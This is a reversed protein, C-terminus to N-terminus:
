ESVFVILLLVMGADAELECPFKCHEPQPCKISTTGVSRSINLNVLDDDDDLDLDLDGRLARFRSEDKRM